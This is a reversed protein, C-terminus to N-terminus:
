TVTEGTMQPALPQARNAVSGAALCAQPTFVACAGASSSRASSMAGAAGVLDHTSRGVAKPIKRMTPETMPKRAEKARATSFYSFSSFGSAASEHSRLGNKEHPETM